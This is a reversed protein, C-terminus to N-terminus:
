EPAKNFIRRLFPETLEELSDIRWEAEYQQPKELDKYAGQMVRITKFGLPKIGVFDKNPNDGIYVVDEPAVREIKCIKKFCYPSPKAHHLGYRHTIFCHKVRGPLSLADLKNKQVIKNGDTVIYLPYDKLRFLCRDAEEDLKISPHHLRYVSLCKRLRKKNYLGFHKLLDDLINKRGLKIRESLFAGAEEKPVDFETNLYRVVAKLGSKVFAMEEYLTDDLDFVIVM